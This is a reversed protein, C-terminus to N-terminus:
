VESQAPARTVAAKLKLPLASRFLLSPDAPCSQEARPRVAQPECSTECRWEGTRPLPDQPGARMVRWVSDKPMVRRMRVGGARELREADRLVPARGIGIRLRGGTELRDHTPCCFRAAIGCKRDKNHGLPV